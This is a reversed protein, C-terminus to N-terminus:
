QPEPPLSLTLVAYPKGVKPEIWEKTLVGSNVMRDTVASTKVPKWGLRKALDGIRVKKGGMESLMSLVAEDWKARERLTWLAAPTMARGTNREEPTLDRIDSRKVTFEENRDTLIKLVHGLPKVEGYDKVITCKIARGGHCFVYKQTDSIM